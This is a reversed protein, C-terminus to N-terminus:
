NKVDIGGMFAIGRVVLRSVPRMRNPRTSDGLGGMVPLVRSEVVWSTPVLIEVGGMVAVVDLVAEEGAMVAQRLDLKCAGMVATLNAGRFQTTDTTREVGGLLATMSIHADRASAGRFAPADLEQGARDYDASAEPQAPAYPQAAAFPQDVPDARPYAPDSAGRGRDADNLGFAGRVISLGVLILALPWLQWISVDIVGINQGLLWLGVIVLGVDWAYGVWSNTQVLRAVGIAVLIVPWYRVLRGAHIMHLNDLMFLLGAAIISLGLVLGSLDRHTQTSDPM